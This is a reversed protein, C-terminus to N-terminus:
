DCKCDELLRKAEGAERLEDVADMLHKLNMRDQRFKEKDGEARALRLSCKLNCLEQAATEFNLPEPPLTSDAPEDSTCAAMAAFALFPIMHKIM